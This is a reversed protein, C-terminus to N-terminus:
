SPYERKLVTFPLYQQLGREAEALKALRSKLKLVTFPLYQQLSRSVNRTIVIHATEIGHVTLVTAVPAVLEKTNPSLLVPNLVTFPLYQQLWPVNPPHVFLQQTEIGHVTLVTAVAPGLFGTNM